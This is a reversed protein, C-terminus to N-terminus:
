FYKRKIQAAKTIAIALALFFNRKRLIQQFRLLFVLSGKKVTVEAEARVKLAEDFTNLKEQLENCYPKFGHKEHL